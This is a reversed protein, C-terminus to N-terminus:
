HQTQNGAAGPFPVFCLNAPMPVSQASAEPTKIKKEEINVGPYWEQLDSKKVLIM